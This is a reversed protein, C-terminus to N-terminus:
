AFTSCEGSHLADEAHEGGKSAVDYDPELPKLVHDSGTRVGNGLGLVASFYEDRISKFNSEVLQVASTITPDNYAIRLRRIQQSDNNSDSSDPATWFPLSRLGPLHFMSPSPRHVGTFTLLSPGQIVTSSDPPHDEDNQGHSSSFSVSSLANTPPKCLRRWHLLVHPTVARMTSMRALHLAYCFIVIYLISHTKKPTGVFVLELERSGIELYWVRVLVYYEKIIVSEILIVQQPREILVPKNDVFSACHYLMDGREKIAREMKNRTVDKTLCFLYSM